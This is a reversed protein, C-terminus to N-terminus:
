DDSKGIPHFSAGTGTEAGASATLPDQAHTDEPIQVTPVRSLSPPGERLLSEFALDVSEPTPEELRVPEM